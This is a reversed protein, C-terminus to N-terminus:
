LHKSAIMAVFSIIALIFASSHIRTIIKQNDSLKFIEDDNVYSGPNKIFGRLSLSTQISNGFLVPSGLSIWVELHKLKLIKIIKGSCVYSLPLTIMMTSFGLLFGLGGGALLLEKM